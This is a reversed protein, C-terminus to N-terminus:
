GIKMLVLSKDEIGLKDLLDAIVDAKKSIRGDMTAAGIFDFYRYLDFHKLIEVAFEYPKSTALAVFVERRKLEGLMDPIGEYVSNEFIGGARFYERYYGIAENARAETFGYYKQFSELLPPGIFPYLKKRDSENIDFKKLAYMVSNTIGVGPDTLTGDLDFFCYRYTM